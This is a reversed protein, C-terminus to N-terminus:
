KTSSYSGCVSGNQVWEGAKTTLKYIVFPPGVLDKTLEVQRKMYDNLVEMPHARIDPAFYQRGPARLVEVHGVGSVSNLLIPKTDVGQVSTTLRDRDVTSVISFGSATPQQKDFYFFAATINQPAISRNYIRRMYTFQERAADEAAKQLAPRLSEIPLHKALIAMIGRQFVESMPKNVYGHDTRVTVSHGINGLVAVAYQPSVILKCGHTISTSDGTKFQPTWAKLTDMAIYFVGDSNLFIVSTGFASPMGFLLLFCIAGRLVRHRSRSLSRLNNV